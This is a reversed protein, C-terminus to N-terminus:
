TVNINTKNKKDLNKVFKYTKNELALTTVNKNWHCVCWFGTGFVSVLFSTGSGGERERGLGKRGESTYDGKFGAILDPSRQSSGWRSRLHIM